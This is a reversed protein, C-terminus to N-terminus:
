VPQQTMSNSEVYKKFNNLIAQWGDRQLEISNLGEAEFTEIIKTEGENSLFSIKVKRGDDLSYDIKENPRVDDYVGSFDFGMSGDKAEMRSLFKGGPRLDNEAFPTYWDDSANNWKTIHQPQTWFKWVKDIGAGITTEVTIKTASVPMM